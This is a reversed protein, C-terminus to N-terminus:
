RSEGMNTSLNAQNDRQTERVADDSEEAPVQTESDVEFNPPDFLFHIVFKGLPGDRNKILDMVRKEIAHAGPGPSVTVLISAIQEIVDSGAAYGIGPDKKKGGARNVQVSCIIPVERALAVGKLEEHITAQVEWKAKMGRTQPKMLYSADIFVIDPGFEQVLNDVDGTSKNFDGPLLYFPAVNEGHFMSAINQLRSEGRPTLMGRRILDPNVGARLGLLRRSVQLGTMEMTVFLVSYGAQWAALAMHMLTYSKGVNPRALVVVLDGGQAGATLDDLPGWGLTVGRLAATRHAVDYDELVDGVTSVMTQINQEARLAGLEMAMQRSVEVMGDVDRDRVTRALTHYHERGANFIARRQVQQLYYSFNDQPPEVLAIGARQFVERSPLEGHQRYHAHLVDYAPLESPQFYERRLRRFGNRSGDRLLAAIAALGDSM